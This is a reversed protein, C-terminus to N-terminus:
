TPARRHLHVDIGGRHRLGAVARDVNLRDDRLLHRIEQGAALCPGARREVYNNPCLEIRVQIRAPEGGDHLHDVVDGHQRNNQGTRRKYAFALLTGDLMQEHHRDHRALDHQRLDDGITEDDQHRGPQREGDDDPPPQLHRDLARQREKETASREVRKRNGRETDQKPRNGCRHPLEPEEGNGNKDDHM